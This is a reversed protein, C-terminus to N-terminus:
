SNECYKGQCILWEDLVARIEARSAAAMAQGRLSAGQRAGRFYAALQKRMERVATAEGYADILGDLHELIVTAKVEPDPAVTNIEAEPLDGARPDAAGPDATGADDAVAPLNALVAALRQFIWPDGQAARGIM